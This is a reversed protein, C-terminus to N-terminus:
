KFEFFVIGDFRPNEEKRFYYEFFDISVVKQEESSAHIFNQGDFLFGEHRVDLGIKEDGEILFAIGIVSPLSSFLEQNIEQSPLYFFSVEKEWDIDILREGDLLKNLVVKKEKLKNLDIIEETINQFYSSTINRDTTFHLRTEFSIDQPSSYNISKIIEEAEELSQSHLLAINTMVFVTCDAKDLRFIPDQDRGKGEGLCGAQYPTGLRLFSLAKLREEQNPFLENIEKLILNNEFSSLEYLKKQKELWQWNSDEEIFVKEKILYFIPILLLIFVIIIIRKM